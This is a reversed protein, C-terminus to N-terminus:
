RVAANNILERMGALTSSRLRGNPGFAWWRLGMSNMGDDPHILIGRYEHVARHPVRGKAPAATAPM